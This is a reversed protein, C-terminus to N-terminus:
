TGSLLFRSFAIPTRTWNHRTDCESRSRRGLLRRWFRECYLVSVKRALPPRGTLFTSTSCRETRGIGAHVRVRLRSAPPRSISAFIEVRSSNSGFLQMKLFLSLGAAIHITEVPRTLTPVLEGKGLSTQWPWNIKPRVSVIAPIPWRSVRKASVNQVQL